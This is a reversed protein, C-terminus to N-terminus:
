FARWSDSTLSIIRTRLVNSLSQEVNQDESHMYRSIPFEVVDIERERQICIM